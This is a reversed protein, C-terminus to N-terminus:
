PPTAGCANQASCVRADGPFQSCPSHADPERQLSAFSPGRLSFQVNRRDDHRGAPPFPRPGGGRLLISLERALRHKAAGQAQKGRMRVDLGYLRDDVEIVSFVEALSRLTEFPQAGRDRSALRSLCGHERTEDGDLGDRGSITRTWSAARGNAERSSTSRASAATFAVPAATGARGTLSVILLTSASPMTFSVSSRELSRAM